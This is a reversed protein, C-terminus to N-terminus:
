SAVPSSTDHGNASAAMAEELVALLEEIRFPKPVIRVDLHRLQEAMPGDQVIDLAATCLILPVRALYPDRRVGMLFAWGTEQEGAFLLDQVIIDPGLAAIRALDLTELSATVRYGEEELLEQLLDLIERTDDIVVVPPARNDMAVSATTTMEAAHYAAAVM